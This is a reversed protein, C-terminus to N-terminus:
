SSVQRAFRIVTPGGPKGLQDTWAVVLRGQRDHTLGVLDWIVTQHSAASGLYANRAVTARNWTRGGDRSDAVVFDWPRTATGADSFTSSYYAVSVHGDGTATLMPMMASGSAPDLRRPASWPRGPGASTVTYVHYNRDAVATGPQFGEAGSFAITRRGLADVALSVVTTIGIPHDGNLLTVPERTWTLGEDRSTALDIRDICGASGSYVACYPETGSAYPALLEGHKADYAPTDNEYLGSGPPTPAVVVPLSWTKGADTSRVAEISGPIGLYTLVVAHPTGIIFPRDNAVQANVDDSQQWTRGNDTSRMVVTGLTGTGISVSAVKPNAMASMLLTGDPAQAFDVDDGQQQNGGSLHFRHGDDSVWICQQAHTTPKGTACDWQQFQASVLIRGSRSVILRPEGTSAKQPGLPSAIVTVPAEFALHRPEAAQATGAALVAAGVALVLSGKM